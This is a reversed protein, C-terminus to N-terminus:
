KLIVCVPLGVRSFIPKSIKSKQPITTKKRESLVVDENDQYLSLLHGTEEETQGRANNRILSDYMLVPEKKQM